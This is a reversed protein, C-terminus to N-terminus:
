EGVELDVDRRNKRLESATMRANNLRTADVFNIWMSIQRARIEATALYDPKQADKRWASLANAAFYRVIPYNDGSFSEVLFPAYWDPSSHKFLADAMMARTVADGGFLGRVSEPTDFKTDPSPEGASYHGPWLGRSSSVAWNVSKDVHCQNCANPVNKEVTLLPEPITIKHTRHFSQIGYVVEPMHCSHCSSGSSAAKHKTHQVLVTEDMFQSHCQTCGLNTRKDETIQGNIDGDHMSHCSLCNIRNGPEGKKFCASDLIGQYEYATLRPSGDDWFRTAFSVNGITTGRHVPTYFSALNEGADFPDGRTLIERIREQPEPVRQGHCHGCIMMSRDSDIKLPDVIKRDAAERFQWLLRTAPSSAAQIHEAGQAHCAGCAIGLEAVETRAKRTEFSFNPQAKVNHCFVCNTDWQSLHQKFDGGDPYFFSGSLSMWRKNMLDYGIPLRYYQGNQQTVYQQIRRSGVTREIKFEEAKGDPYRFSIWFNAGRRQMTAKVGEYEYVNNKEFDGQVTEPTAQQTMRSHHTRRWSAYHDAHCALCNGSTVYGADPKGNRVGSLNPRLTSVAMAVAFAVFGTAVASKILVVQPM